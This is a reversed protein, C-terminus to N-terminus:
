EWMRLQSALVSDVARQGNHRGWRSAIQWRNMSVYTMACRKLVQNSYTGYSILKLVISRKSKAVNTMKTKTTLITNDPIEGTLNTTHMWGSFASTASLFAALSGCVTTALALFTVWVDEVFFTFIM